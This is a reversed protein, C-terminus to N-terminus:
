KWEGDENLFDYTPLAGPDECWITLAVPDWLNWGEVKVADRIVAKLEDTDLHNVSGVIVEASSAMGAGEFKAFNAARDRNRAWKEVVPLLANTATGAM